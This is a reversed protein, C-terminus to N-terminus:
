KILELSSEPILRDLQEINDRTPKIYFWKYYM